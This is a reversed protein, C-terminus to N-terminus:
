AAFRQSFVRHRKPRKKPRSRTSVADGEMFVFVIVDANGRKNVKAAPPTREQAVAEVPSPVSAGGALASCCGAWCPPSQAQHRWDCSFRSSRMPQDRSARKPMNM